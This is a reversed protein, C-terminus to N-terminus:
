KHNRKFNDKFRDTFKVTYFRGIAFRDEFPDEISLPKVPFNCFRKKDTNCKNYDTVFFENALLRTYIFDQALPGTMKTDIELTYEDRIEDQLQEEKYNNLLYEETIFTPKPFGFYGDLRIWQEWEMGTWDFASRRINGNQITHIVVTEDAREDTYELLSYIDSFQNVSSGLITMEAMVYYEGHGHTTFVPEWDLKYGFYLEQGPCNTWTGVPYFTGFSPDNLTEKEVWVENEKKFLKIEGTDAADLLRFLFSTCDNEKDEGGPNAFVRLKLQCQDNCRCDCFESEDVPDVTCTELKCAMAHLNEPATNTSELFIM